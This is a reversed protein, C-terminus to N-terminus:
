GASYQVASGREVTGQMRSYQVAGSKGASFKVASGVATCKM